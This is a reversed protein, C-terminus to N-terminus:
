KIALQVSFVKAFFKKEWFYEKRFIHDIGMFAPFDVPTYIWSIHVSHFRMKIQTDCTREKKLQYVFDSFSFRKM